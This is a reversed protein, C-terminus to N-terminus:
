QSQYEQLTENFGELSNLCLLSADIAFAYFTEDRHKEAFQAIRSESYTLLTNVSFSV